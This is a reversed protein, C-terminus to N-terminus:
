ASCRRGRERATYGIRLLRNLLVLARGNAHQLYYPYVVACLSAWPIIQSIADPFGDRPKRKRKTEFDVGGADAAEDGTGKQPINLKGLLM